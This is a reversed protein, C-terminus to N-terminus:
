NTFRLRTIEGSTLTGIARIWMFNGRSATTISGTNAGNYVIDTNSTTKLTFWDNEGPFIELTGQLEVTGVFNNFELVITHVNAVQSHYGAGAKKDGVFSGPTTTRDLLTVFETSM